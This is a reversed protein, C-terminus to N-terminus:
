TFIHLAQAETLHVQGRADAFEALDGGAEYGTVIYVSGEVEFFDVIRLM